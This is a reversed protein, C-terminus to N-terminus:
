SIIRRKPLNHIVSSRTSSASNRAGSRGGRPVIIVNGGQYSSLPGFLDNVMAYSWYKDGHHHENREVDFVINGAATEMKKLALMQQMLDRYDSESSPMNPAPMWPLLAKRAQLRAKVGSSFTSKRASTFQVTQARGPWKAQAWEALQVGVGGRTGDIALANLPLHNMAFVLLAKKGEFPMDKMGINLRLAVTERDEPLNHAIMLEDQDRHRGVDLAANFTGRLRGAKLETELSLIADLAANLVHPAIDYNKGDIEEWAFFYDSFREACAELILDLEFYSPNEALVKMEFERQFMALGLGPTTLYFVFQEKLKANGFKQVRDITEMQPALRRAEVVDVCLAPSTWWPFEFVEWEVDPLGALLPNEKALRSYEGSTIQYFTTEEGRQTGGLRIAGRHTTAGIAATLIEGSTVKGKIEVSFEDGLYWGGSGTGAKRAVFKIESGNKFYRADSGDSMKLERQVGPKLVGYIWDLFNLKNKAEEEDYSGITFSSRDTTACGALALLTIGWSHATKRCKILAQAKAHSQICAQHNPLLSLATDDNSAKKIFPEVETKCFAWRRKAELRARAEPQSIESPLSM